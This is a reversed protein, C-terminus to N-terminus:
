VTKYSMFLGRICFFYKKLGKKEGGSGFHVLDDNYDNPYQITKFTVFRDKFIRKLKRNMAERKIDFTKKDLGPVRKFNGRTSIESVYIKKVGSEKMKDTVILIKKVLDSPDSDPRIDNGGLCVFCVDPNFDTLKQLEIDDYDTATMGGSTFFGVDGPVQFPCLFM